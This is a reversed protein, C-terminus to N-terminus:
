GRGRGSGRGDGGDAELRNGDEDGGETKAVAKAKRRGPVKPKFKPKQTGGLTLDPKPRISGLRGTAGGGAAGGLLGVWVCM